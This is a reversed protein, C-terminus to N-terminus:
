GFGDRLKAKVTRLKEAILNGFSVPENFNYKKFSRALKIKSCFATAESSGNLDVKKM